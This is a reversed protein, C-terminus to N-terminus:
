FLDGLKSGAEFLDISLEYSFGAFFALSPLMISLIILNWFFRSLPSQKPKPKRHPYPPAPTEASEEVDVKRLPHHPEREPM